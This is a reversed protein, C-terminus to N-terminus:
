RSFSVGASSKEVVSSTNVDVQNTDSSQDYTLNAPCIIGDISLPTNWSTDYIFKTDSGVRRHYYCMVFREIFLLLSTHREAKRQLQQTLFTKIDEAMNFLFIVMHCYKLKWFIGCVLILGM